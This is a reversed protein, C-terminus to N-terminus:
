IFLVLQLVTNLEDDQSYKSQSRFSQLLRSFSRPCVLYAIMLVCGVNYGCGRGTGTMLLNLNIKYFQIFKLFPIVRINVQGRAMFDIFLKCFGLM